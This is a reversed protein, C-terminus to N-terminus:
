VVRRLHRETRNEPDAVGLESEALDALLVKLQRRARCLRSMVTGIPVDLLEAVTQYSFEELDVLTLVTRQGVPLASVARRVRHVLERDSHVHPPSKEWDEVLDELEVNPYTKRLQDCWLGHLIRVLWADMAEMDRLQHRKQLARYMAEQVLDEAQEPHRTWAYAVRNLKPRAKELRHSFTLARCASKILEM